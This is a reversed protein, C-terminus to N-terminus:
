TARNSDMADMELLSSERMHWQLPCAASLRVQLTTLQFGVEENNGCVASGRDCRINAKICQLLGADSSEKERFDREYTDCRRESNTALSLTTEFM